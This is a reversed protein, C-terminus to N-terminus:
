QQRASGSKRSFFRLWRGIKLFALQQLVKEIKEIIVGRFGTKRQNLPPLDSSLQLGFANL